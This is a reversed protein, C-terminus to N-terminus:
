QRLRRPRAALRPALPPALWASRRGARALRGAPERRSYSRVLGARPLAISPRPRIAALAAASLRGIV